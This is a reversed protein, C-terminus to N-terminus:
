EMEKCSLPCWNLLNSLRERYRIALELAETKVEMRDYGDLVTHLGWFLHMVRVNYGSIAAICLKM